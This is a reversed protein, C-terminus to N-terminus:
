HNMCNFVKRAFVNMVRKIEDVKIVILKFSFEPNKVMGMDSVRKLKNFDWIM